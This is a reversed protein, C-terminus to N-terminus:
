VARSDQWILPLDADKLGVNMACGQTFTVDDRRLMDQDEIWRTDQWIRLLHVVRM